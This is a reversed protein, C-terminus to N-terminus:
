GTPATFPLPQAGRATLMGTMVGIESEQSELMKSAFNQVVPSAAHNAAYTMMAAGGQHHRIMLQLFYIDSATGKLGELKTIEADTAMGPMVAGDSLGSTAGRTTVMNMDAMGASGMWSMHADDTLRQVGWLDLWGQMTGIQSTQTFEIDYATIRVDKDTSDLEAIHAMLVGQNHHVIMDRSFGTDVPDQGEASISVTKPGSRALALGITAGILVMVLAGIGVIVVTGRPGWRTLMPATSPGSTPRTPRHAEEVDLRRGGPATM